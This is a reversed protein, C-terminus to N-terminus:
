YALREDEAAQRLCENTIISHIALGYKNECAAWIKFVFPRDEMQQDRDTHNWFPSLQENICYDQPEITTRSTLICNIGKISM